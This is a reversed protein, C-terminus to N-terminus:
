QRKMSICYISAVSGQQRKEARAKRRLVLVRHSAAWPDSAAADDIDRGPPATVGGFRRIFGSLRPLERPARGPGDGGTPTM